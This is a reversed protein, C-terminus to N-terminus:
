LRVILGAFRFLLSVLEQLMDIEREQARGEQMRKMMNTVWTTGIPIFMLDDAITELM